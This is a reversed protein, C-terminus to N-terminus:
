KKWRHIDGSALQIVTSNGTENSINCLRSDRNLMDWDLLWKNLWATYKNIEPCSNTIGWNEKMFMKYFCGTFQKIINQKHYIRDTM